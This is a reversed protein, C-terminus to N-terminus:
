KKFESKLLAAVGSSVPEKDGVTKGEERFLSSTEVQKYIAAIADTFKAFDADDLSLAAKTLIDVHEKQVVAAVKETKAKTIAEQKEQKLLALEANAKELLVTADELSKQVAQDKQDDKDMSKETPNAKVETTAKPTAKAVKKKPASKEPLPKEMAKEVLQQDLMLQLYDEQSLQQLVLSPSAADNAAKMISFSKLKDLLYNEYWNEDEEKDEPKVYGLLRALVEADDYYMDFFRRLFEPFELTVQVQQIKEIYEPTYNAAKMVMAYAHNNAPGNDKHCLAVHAGQTSFDINKLKRKAKETM